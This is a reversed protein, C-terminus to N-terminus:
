ACGPTSLRRRPTGISRGAGSTCTSRTTGTSITHMSSSRRPRTETTPGTGVIEEARSNAEDADAAVIYVRPGIGAADDIEFDGGSNNQRFEFIPKGPSTGWVTLSQDAM